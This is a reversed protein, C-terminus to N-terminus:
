NGIINRIAVPNRYNWSSIKIGSRRSAAHVVQGNGIYMSVHNIKGSKNAYFILDGPRMQSSDIKTGMQAQSGSYHPLSYGYKGLVQMTFGSCDVGKTLSTGGWVYPNGLFQLAYNVVNTRVSSIGSGEGTLPNFKVGENLAYRVDVFETSVYTNNDDELEIEIWGELQKIVPYKEANTIQTWIKSELSPESRVNLVPTNVIVMLQAEALAIDKAAAGTTIYDSSVYGTVPGSKIKYWGDLTELIDAAAHKPLKGIVNSDANGEPIKAEKRINVYGGATSIGLNDYENLVMSKLDLKRAENLALGVTVFEASLYGQQIQVWGEQKALVEYREGKEVTGLVEATDNPEKRIRLKDAQVIAREKVYDRALLRAEEGQVVNAAMVYGDIGGSNIHLWEQDAGEVISVASGDYLKGIVDKDTGPEKRINLYGSELRVIGLNAYSNIVEEAQRLTVGSALTEEVAEGGQVPEAVSTTAVEVESATAKKDGRNRLAFVTAAVLLILLIGLGAAMMYIKNRDGRRRGRVRKLRASYDLNQGM